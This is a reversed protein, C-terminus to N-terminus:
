VWLNGRYAPNLLFLMYFVTLGLAVTVAFRVSRQMPRWSLDDAPTATMHNARRVSSRANESEPM